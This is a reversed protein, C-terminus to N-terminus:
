DVRGRLRYGESKEGFLSQLFSSIFNQKLMDNVFSEFHLGNKTSCSGTTCYRVSRGKNRSRFIRSFRVCAPYNLNEQMKISFSLMASILIYFLSFFPNKHTIELVFIFVLFRDFFFLRM